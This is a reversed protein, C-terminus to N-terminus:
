HTRLLLMIRRKAENWKLKLTVKVRCVTKIKRKKTEGNFNEEEMVEANGENKELEEMNTKEGEETNKAPVDKRLEKNDKTVKKILVNLTADDDESENEETPKNMDFKKM